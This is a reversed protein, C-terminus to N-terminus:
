WVEYDHNENKNLDKILEKFEPIDAYDFYLGSRKYVELARRTQWKWFIRSDPTTAVYYSYAIMQLMQEVTETRGEIMLQERALSGNTYATFENFIYSPQNKWWRQSRILYLNYVSGRLANPIKEATKDLSGPIEDFVFAKNNLVYFTPKGYIESLRSNVGHTSEHVANIKDKNNNYINGEPLYSQVDSVIDNGPLSRIPKPSVWGSIAILSILILKIM